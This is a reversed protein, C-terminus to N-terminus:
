PSSKLGALLTFAIRVSHIAGMALLFYVLMGRWNRLTVDSQGSVLYKFVLSALCVGALIHIFTVIM